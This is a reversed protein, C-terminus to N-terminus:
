YLLNFTFIGFTSTPAAIGFSTPTTTNNLSTFGGTTGGGFATGGGFGGTAGTGANPVVGNYFEYRMEALSKKSFEKM